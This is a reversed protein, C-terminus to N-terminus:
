AGTTAEVIHVREAAPDRGADGAAPHRDGRHLRAHEFGAGRLAAAAHDAGDFHVHVRGQVFVSLAAGFGRAFAGENAGGVLLDALYLGDDFGGLVRAFRTWMGLVAEVDFYNLLGETVIALGAGRDLSGAVAALSAPGDDSLADLEVVRHREPVAGIRALARRKRRAMAPLDTEVYTVRDGFREAFRWGRPSMGCAIEIVQSVRGDEIADALLADIIRHRALLMAEMSPGGLLRSAAMTPALAAWLIRGETTALAPHSLGNREWVYGTYHATPSVSDPGRRLPIM